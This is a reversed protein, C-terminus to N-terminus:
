QIIKQISTKHIVQLSVQPAVNENHVNIEM